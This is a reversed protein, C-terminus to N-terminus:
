PEERRTEMAARYGSTSKRIAGQAMGNVMTDVMADATVDLTDGRTSDGVDSKMFPWKLLGLLSVKRFRAVNALASSTKGM